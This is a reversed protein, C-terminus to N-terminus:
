TLGGWDGGGLEGSGPGDGSDEGGGIGHTYPMPWRNPGYFDPDWAGEGSKEIGIWVQTRTWSGDSAEDCDDQIKVWEYQNIISDLNEPAEANKSPAPVDIYGLKDLMDAPPKATTTRCILQPHFRMVSEVGRDIKSMLESTAAERSETAGTGLEAVTGDPKTYAGRAAIDADPEKQWCEIWPRNPQNESKGCYALISVDNRCSKVSWVEQLIEDEIMVFSITLIGTNAPLRQLEWSTVRGGDYEDGIMIGQADSALEDYPGKWSRHVVRLGSETRAAGEELQPIATGPINVAM